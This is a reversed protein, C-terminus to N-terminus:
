RQARIDLDFDTPRSPSAPLGDTGGLIAFLDLDPDGTSVQTVPNPGAAPLDVSGIGVPAEGLPTDHGVPKKDLKVDHGVPDKGFTADHVVPDKGHTVPDKDHTVDHSIPGKGFPADQSVSDKGHNADHGGGYLHPGHSAYGYPRRRNYYYPRRYYYSKRYYGSYSEVVVLTAAATLVLLCLTAKGM